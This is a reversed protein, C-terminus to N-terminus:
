PVIISSKKSHLILRGEEKTVNFNTELYARGVCWLFKKIKDQSIDVVFLDGHRENWLIAATGLSMEEDLLKGFAWRMCNEHEEPPVGSDSFMELGVMYYKTINETDAKNEKNKIFDNVDM